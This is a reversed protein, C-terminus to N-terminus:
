SVTDLLDRDLDYIFERSETWSLDGEGIKIEIRQPLFTIVDDDSPGAALAPTFTINTTPGTGVPTRATVTHVPSSPENAVTFRAGVPVLDTDDTNLVITDIDLDTEGGSPSENLAATGSLGDQLYITTDRLQIRAM